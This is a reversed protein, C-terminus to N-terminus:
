GVMCCIWRETRLAEGTASFGREHLYQGILRIVEREEMGSGVVLVARVSSALELVLGRPHPENVAM